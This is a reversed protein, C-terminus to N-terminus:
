NNTYSPAPTRKMFVACIFSTSVSFFLYPVMKLTVYRFPSTRSFQIVGEDIWAQYEQPKVNSNNKLINLFAESHYYQYAIDKWKWELEIYHYVSILVIAIVATKLGQQLARKGGIMGGRADRAQKISLPIFPLMILVAVFQSWSFGFKTLAFGGLIIVLKFVIVALAAIIGTMYSGSLKM